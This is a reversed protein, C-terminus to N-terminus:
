SNSLGRSQRPITVENDDELDAVEDMKNIAFIIRRGAKLDNVLWRITDTHSKKLPNVPSVVFIIASARAIYKLAIGDHETYSSFLGPTDIFVYKDTRLESITRTTPGFGIPIEYQEAMLGALCSKGDSFTGLFAVIPLSGDLSRLVDVIAKRESDFSPGLDAELADIIVTLEQFKHSVDSEAVDEPAKKMNM